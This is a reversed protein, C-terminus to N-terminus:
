IKGEFFDSNKFKEKSCDNKNVTKKFWPMYVIKKDFIPDDLYEALEKKLTGDLNLMSKEEFQEKENLLDVIPYFHVRDVDWEEALHIMEKMQFYNERQVVFNIQWAKIDGKRKHESLMELNRVLIEFKAGPRLKEYVKKEAGDVSIMVSINKYNQMLHCFERENFLIGNSYIIIHNRKKLNNHYLLSRYIKSYFVEGSGALIISNAKELWGTEILKKAKAKKSQYERGDELYKPEKRCSPCMLNCVYDILPRICSPTETRPPENRRKVDTNERKRSCIIECEKEKCFCYTNNLISLRFIQASVSQWIKEYPEYNYDGFSAFYMDTFNGCHCGIANGNLELSIVDFPDQCFPQGEIPTAYVVKRMMESPLAYTRDYILHYSVFDEVEKLGKETLYEYVEHYYDHTMVVIYYENWHNKLQDPSVIEIGHFKKGAKNKDADIFIDPMIKATDDKNLMYYKRSETGTGWIAVKRDGATEKWDFDLTHFLEDAFIFDRGWQYGEEELRNWERSEVCSTIAKLDCVIMLINELDQEKLDQTKYVPLDHYKVGDFSDSIYFEPKLTHFIYEFDEQFKGIGCIAIKRGYIIKELKSMFLGEYIQKEVAFSANGTGMLERVLFM